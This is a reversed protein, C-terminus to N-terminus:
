NGSFEATFYAEGEASNLSVYWKGDKQVTRPFVEDDLHAQKKYEVRLHATKWEAPLYKAALRVYQVNNVHHNTDLHSEQIRFSPRAEGAEPMRVKRSGMDETLKLEPNSGYAELQEAPVKMPKQSKMDMFIWVSNCVVLTEGEETEISFQRYGIMGRFAIPWTNVRIHDNFRPYRYIHLQLDAVIWACGMEINRNLSCGCDEGHFTATDQLYNLISDITMNQEGDVESYRVRSRYTYRM